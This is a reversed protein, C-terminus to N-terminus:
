RCTTTGSSIRSPCLADATRGPPVGTFHRRANPGKLKGHWFRAERRGGGAPHLGASRVFARLRSMVFSASKPAPLDM